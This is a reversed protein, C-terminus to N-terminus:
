GCYKNRGRCVESFPTILQKLFQSAYLTYFFISLFTPCNLNFLNEVIVQSFTDQTWVSVSFFKLQKFSYTALIYCYLHHRQMSHNKGRKVAYKESGSM